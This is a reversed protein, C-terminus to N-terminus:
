KKKNLMRPKLKLVGDRELKVLESIFTVRQVKKKSKIIMTSVDFENDKDNKIEMVDDNNNMDQNSM